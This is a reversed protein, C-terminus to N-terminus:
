YCVFLCFSCMGTSTYAHGIHPKDNVYYIPTTIQYPRQGDDYSTSPLPVLTTTTTTDHHDNSKHNNTEYLRHCPHRIVTDYNYKWLKSQQLQIPIKNSIVFSPINNCSMMHSQQYWHHTRIGITTTTTTTRLAIVTWSSSITSPQYYLYRQLLIM